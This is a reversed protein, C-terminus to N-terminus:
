ALFPPPRQFAPTLTPTRPAPNHSRAALPVLVSFPAILGVFFVPLLALWDPQACNHNTPVLLALLAIAIAAIAIWLWARKQRFASM